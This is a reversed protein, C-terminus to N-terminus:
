CPRSWPGQRAVTVTIGLGLGVILLKAILNGLAARPVAALLRYLGSHRAPRTARGEAPQGSVAPPSMPSRDPSRPQDSM